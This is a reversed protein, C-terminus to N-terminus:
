KDLESLRRAYVNKLVGSVRAWREM